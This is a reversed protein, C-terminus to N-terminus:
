FFNEIRSFFFDLEVFKWKQLEWFLKLVYEYCNFIIKHMANLFYGCALLGSIDDICTGIIGAYGLGKLIFWNLNSISAPCFNFGNRVVLYREGFIKFYSFIFWFLHKSQLDLSVWHADTVKPIKTQRPQEPM